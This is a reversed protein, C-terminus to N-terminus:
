FVFAAGQAVKSRSCADHFSRCGLVRSPEFGQCVHTQPPRGLDILQCFNVPRELKSVASCLKSAIVRPRQASQQARTAFNKLVRLLRCALTVLWCTGVAGGLKYMQCSCRLGTRRSNFSKRQITIQPGRPFHLIKSCSKACPRQWVCVLQSQASLSMCGDSVDIPVAIPMPNREYPYGVGRGKYTSECGWRVALRRFVVESNRPSNQLNQSADHQVRCPKAAVLWVPACSAQWSRPFAQVHKGAVRLAQQTWSDLLAGCQIAKLFSSTAFCAENANM